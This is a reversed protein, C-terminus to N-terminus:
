SKAVAKSFAAHHAVSRADSDVDLITGPRVVEHRPPMPTDAGSVADFLNWLEPVGGGIGRKSTLGEITVAGANECYIIRAQLDVDLIM